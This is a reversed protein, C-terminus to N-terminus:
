WAPLQRVISCVKPVHRPPIEFSAPPETWYPCCWIKPDNNLIPRYLDIWKHDNTTWIVHSSHSSPNSDYCRCRTIWGDFNANSSTKGLRCCFEMLPSQSQFLTIHKDGSRVDMFYWCFLMELSIHSSLCAGAAWARWIWEGPFLRSIVVFRLYM